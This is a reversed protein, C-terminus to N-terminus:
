RVLPQLLSEALEADEPAFALIREAALRTLATRDKLRLLPQQADVPLPAIGAERARALELEIREADVREPLMPSGFWVPLPATLADDVERPVIAVVRGERAGLNVREATQSGVYLVPERTNRPTVYAPDVELILLLGARVEPREARWTHVYPEELEFPQASVVRLAGGVQAPVGALTTDQQQARWWASAGGALALVTLAISTTATLNRM